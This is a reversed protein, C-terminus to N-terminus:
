GSRGMKLVRQLRTPKAKSTVGMHFPEALSNDLDGVGVLLKNKGRKPKPSLSM